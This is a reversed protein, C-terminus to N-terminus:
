CDERTEFHLQELANLKNEKIVDHVKWVFRNFTVTIEYCNERTSFLLLFDALLNSNHSIPKLAHKLVQAVTLSRMRRVSM